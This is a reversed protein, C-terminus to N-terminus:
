PGYELARGLSRAVKDEFGRKFPGGVERFAGDGSVYYLSKGTSDKLVTRVRWTLVPMMAAVPDDSTGVNVVSTDPVAATLDFRYGSGVEVLLPEVAVATLYRGKGQYSGGTTRLVQFKVDVMTMGYVNKATMRYVDGKPPQWGTLDSWHALGKPLATAYATRVDVVPRNAEIVAWLQRGINIIEGLAPLAGEGGAPPPPPIETPSVSPGLREISLTAEDLTYRQPDTAAARIEAASFPTRAAAPVTLCAALAAAPLIPRM